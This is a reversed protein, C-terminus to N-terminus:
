RCIFQLAVILSILAGFYAFSFCKVSMEDSDCAIVGYAPSSTMGGAVIFEKHLNYKSSFITCLLWGCLICVLTISAGYLMTKINFSITQLGTAFGTGAFFLALGMNKIVNMNITSIRKSGYVRNTIYGM